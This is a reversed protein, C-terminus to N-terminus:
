RHPRPCGGRGGCVVADEAGLEVFLLQQQVPSVPLLFVWWGACHRVDCGAAVEWGAGCAPAACLLLLLLLCWCAAWVRSGAGGGFRALALGAAERGPVGWRAARGLLSLLHQGCCGCPSAIGRGARLGRALCESARGGACSWSMRWCLCLCLCLCGRMGLRGTWSWARSVSAGGAAAFLGLAPPPPPM